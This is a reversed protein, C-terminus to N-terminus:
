RRLAAAVRDTFACPYGNQRHFRLLINIAAIETVISKPLFDMELSFRNYIKM